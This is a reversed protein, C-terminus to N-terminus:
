RVKLVERAAQRARFVRLRSVSKGQYYYGVLDARKDAAVLALVQKAEIEREVRPLYSLGESLMLFSHPKRFHTRYLNLAIVAVWSYIQANGQFQHRYQWARTWAEQSLEEAMSAYCGKKVLFRAVRGVGDTFAESFSDATLNVRATMETHM